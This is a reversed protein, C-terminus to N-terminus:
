MGLHFPSPADALEDCTAHDLSVRILLPNPPREGKTMKKGDKSDSTEWVIDQHEALKGQEDYVAVFKVPAVAIACSERPGESLICEGVPHSEQWKGVRHGDRMMGRAEGGDIVIFEGDAVGKKWSHQSLIKGDRTVTWVGDRMGELCAGRLEDKFQGLTLQFSGTGKEFNLQRWTGTLSLLRGDPGWEAHRTIRWDGDLFSKHMETGVHRGHSGVEWESMMDYDSNPYESTQTVHDMMRGLLKGEHYNRVRIRTSKTKPANMAVVEIEPGELVDGNKCSSKYYGPGNEVIAAVAGAPCSSPYEAAIRKATPACASVMSVTFVVGVISIKSSSM